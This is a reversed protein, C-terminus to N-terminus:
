ELAVRKVEGIVPGAQATGTDSLEALDIAQQHDRWHECVHISPHDIPSLETRESGARGDWSASVDCVQCRTTASIKYLLQM